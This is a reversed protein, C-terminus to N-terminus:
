DNFPNGKSDLMQVTGHAAVASSDNKLAEVLQSLADPEILDDSDLFFVFESSSGIEAIGRNRAGPLGANAQDVVRVRPEQDAIKHALASTGDTSGDNVIIMEWDTHTQRQVSAVTEALFESANYAPIIISVTM